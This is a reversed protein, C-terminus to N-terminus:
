DIEKTVASDRFAAGGNDFARWSRRSIDPEPM